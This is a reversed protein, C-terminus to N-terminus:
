MPYLKASDVKILRGTANKELGDLIILYAGKFVLPDVLKRSIIESIESCCVELENDQYHKSYVKKSQM